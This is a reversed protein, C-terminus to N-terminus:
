KRAKRIQISYIAEYRWFGTPLDAYQVPGASTAWDTVRSPENTLNIEVVSGLEPFSWHEMWAKRLVVRIAESLVAGKWDGDPDQTYTHVFFRGVDTFRPDGNWGGMGAMRRILIFAPPPREAILSVVPIDPLGKRLIALLMDEVPRNEILALVSDPLPNPDVQPTPTSPM